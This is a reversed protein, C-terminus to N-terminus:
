QKGSGSQPRMGVPWRKRPLWGLADADDLTLKAVADEDFCRALRQARQVTPAAMHHRKLYSGWNGKGETAEVLPQLRNALVGLRHAAVSAALKATRIVAETEHAIQYRSALETELTVIEDQNVSVIVDSLVQTSM